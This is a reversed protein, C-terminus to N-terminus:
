ILMEPTPGLFKCKSLEGLAKKHVNQNSFNLSFMSKPYSSIGSLLTPYRTNRGALEESPGGLWDYHQGSAMHPHIQSAMKVSLEADSPHSHMWLEDTHLWKLAQHGNLFVAQGLIHDRFEM